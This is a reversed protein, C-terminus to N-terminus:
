GGATRRVAFKEDLSRAAADAAAPDIGKIKDLMDTGVDYGEAKVTAEPDKLLRGRFNDDVVARGIMANLSKDSAM